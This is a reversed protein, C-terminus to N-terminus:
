DASRIRWLPAPGARGTQAGTPREDEDLDGNGDREDDAGREEQPRDVVERADLKSELRAPQDHEAHVRREVAVVLRPRLLEEVPHQLPQLRHRAHLRRRQDLVGQHAAPDRVRAEFHRAAAFRLAHQHVAHARPEEFGHASGM